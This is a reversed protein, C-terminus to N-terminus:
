ENLKSLEELVEDLDMLFNEIIDESFLGLNNSAAATVVDVQVSEAMKSSWAQQM